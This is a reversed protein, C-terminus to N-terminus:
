LLGRLEHESMREAGDSTYSWGEPPRWGQWEQYNWIKRLATPPEVVYAWGNDVTREGEEALVITEHRKDGDRIGLDTWGNTAFADALDGVQWATLKPVFIEGGHMESLARWCFSLWAGIPLHFRTAAPDHVTLPLGELRQLRWKVSISGRSGWVNGGRVAALRCGSQGAVLNGQVFLSEAVAKTKGYLNLPHVAKDSSILLTNKVGNRIAARIVNQTGVVNTATFEQAQQEGAPITKLAAAHVVWDAGVFAEHLREQDRVDGLLFTVRPGPPHRAALAEQQHEDRSFIRVRAQTHELLYGM